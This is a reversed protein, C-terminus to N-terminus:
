FFVYFRMEKRHATSCHKYPEPQGQTRWARSLTPHSLIKCSSMHWSLCATQLCFCSTGLWISQVCAFAHVNIHCPRFELVQKKILVGLWICLVECFSHLPFTKEEIKLSFYSAWLLSATMFRWTQPYLSKYGPTPPPLLRWVLWM